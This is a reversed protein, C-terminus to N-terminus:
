QSQWTDEWTGIMYILKMLVTTQNTHDNVFKAYEDPTEAQDILRNVQNGFAQNMRTAIACLENAVNLLDQQRQTM